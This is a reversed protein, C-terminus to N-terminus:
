LQGAKNIAEFTEWLREILDWHLDLTEAFGNGLAYPEAESVHQSHSLLGNYHIDQIPQQVQDAKHQKTPQGHMAEEVDVSTVFM